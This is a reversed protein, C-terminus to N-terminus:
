LQNVLKRNDLSFLCVRKDLSGSALRRGECNWGVTHVKSSHADVVQIREHQKFYTILDNYSNVVMNIFIQAFVLYM